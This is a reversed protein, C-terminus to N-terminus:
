NHLRYIVTQLWSKVASKFLKWKQISVEGTARFKVPINTEFIRMKKRASMGSIIVNPAFADEHISKFIDEFKERRMLRYPANVDTVGKGFFIRVTVRSIVTVIKRPLPQKRSERIGILLDFEEKNEWLIRFHEARM